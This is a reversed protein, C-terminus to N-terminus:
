QKLGPCSPASGTSMTWHNQQEEHLVRTMWEMMWHGCNQWVLQRAKTQRDYLLPPLSGDMVYGKEVRDVQREQGPQGEMQGM